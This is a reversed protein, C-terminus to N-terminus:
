CLYARHSMARATAQNVSDDLGEFPVGQLASVMVARPQRGILTKSPATGAMVTTLECASGVDTISVTARGTRTKTEWRRLLPVGGGVEEGVEGPATSFDLIRNPNFHISISHPSLYQGGRGQFVTRYCEAHKPHAVACRRPSGDGDDDRQLPGGCRQAAALVNSKATTHLFVPSALQVRAPM